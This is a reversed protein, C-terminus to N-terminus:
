DVTLALGISTVGANDVLNLMGGSNSNSGSNFIVAYSGRARGALVVVWGAERLGATYYSHVEDVGDFTEWVMGWTSKGSVPVGPNLTALTLRTGPYIPFDSPFNSPM